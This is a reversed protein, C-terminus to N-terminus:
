GVRSVSEYNMLELPGVAGEIAQLLTGSRILSVMAGIDTALVRDEDLFPVKGRITRYAERTGEGASLRHTEALLDYAQAACLM